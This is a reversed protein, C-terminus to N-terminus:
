QPVGLMKGWNKWWGLTTNSKSLLVNMNELNKTAEWAWQHGLFCMVTEGPYVPVNNIAYSTNYRLLVAMLRDGSEKAIAAYSDRATSDSVDSYFLKAMAQERRRVDNEYEAIFSIKNSIYNQQYTIFGFISENKALFYEKKMANTWSANNFNTKALSANGVLWNYANNYDPNLRLETTWRDALVGVSLALIGLKM